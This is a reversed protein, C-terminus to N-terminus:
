CTATLTRRGWAAPRTGEAALIPRCVHPQAATHSDALAAPLHGLRPSRTRSRWIALWATSSPQLQQRDAPAAQNLLEAVAPNEGQPADVSRCLVVSKWCTALKQM